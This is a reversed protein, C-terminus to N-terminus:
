LKIANICGILHVFPCATNVPQAPESPDSKVHDSSGLVLAHQAVGSCDSHDEQMPLGTVEGGSQGLHSSTPLRICGSGGMPLRTCGSSSSLRGTSTVCVSTVQQQIKHCISRDSVPAVQQMYNPFGRSPSVVTQITQGLHSLKDAVVNLWGPIHRAKLTVQHRACWTLIRRLLACITGSRMGGEKNIYSVITTNDTAVLVIKDACLNQFEKLTSLSGKTGLLKYATQKRTTVLDRQCYTRKLSRGVRRKIRRYLNASCTKNPTITPRHSHPRRTAVMAFSSAPVQSDSDGERTVRTNEQQEQSAVTHTEHTAPRLSSAKRYSNTVRDSVHVALGSLGSTVTNGINQGSPEAM